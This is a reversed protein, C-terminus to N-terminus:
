EEMDILQSNLVQMLQEKNMKNFNCEHLEFFENHYRCLLGWLVTFELINSSQIKKIIQSFVIKNDYFIFEALNFYGCTNNKALQEFKEFDLLCNLRSQSLKKYDTIAIGEM